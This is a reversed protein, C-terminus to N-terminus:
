KCKINALRGTSCGSGHGNNYHCKKCLAIGNEPDLSLFPELKKPQIHHAHKAPEDCIECRYNARKLVEKSWTKLEEKTCYYDENKNLNVYYSARKGYVSCNNKCKQSCYFRSEGYKKGELSRIRSKVDGIKPIFWNTCKSCKVELLKRNKEDIYLRTEDAYSIKHSYTDYLAIKFRVVGGKWGYNNSGATIGKRNKSIRDKTIDSFVRNKQSKSMKEKTEESHTRCRQECAISCFESPTKKITLYDNKCKNCSDKYVFTIRKKRDRFTGNSLLIINKLTDYCIKM